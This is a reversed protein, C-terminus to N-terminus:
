TKIGGRITKIVAQAIKRSGELYEHADFEGHLDVLRIAGAVKEVLEESDMVQQQEKLAETLREVLKQSNVVKGGDLCISYDLEQTSIAEEAEKILEKNKNIPEVTYGEQVQETSKEQTM